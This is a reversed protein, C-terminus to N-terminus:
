NGCHLELNSSKTIKTKRDLIKTTAALLELVLNDLWQGSGELWPQQYITAVDLDNIFTNFHQSDFGPCSPSFHLGVM